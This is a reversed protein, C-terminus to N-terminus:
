PAATHTGHDQMDQVDPEGPVFSQRVIARGAFDPHDLDLGTDLVAVRIGRGTFPSGIVGIAALGWTHDNTDAFDTSAVAAGIGAAHASDILTTAGEALLKL